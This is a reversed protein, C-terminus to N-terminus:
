IKGVINEGVGICNFKFSGKLKKWGYKGWVVYLEIIQHMRHSPPMYAIDMNTNLHM